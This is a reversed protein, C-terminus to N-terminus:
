SKKYTEEYKEVKDAKVAIGNALMQALAAKSAANRAEQVADRHTKLAAKVEDEGVLSSIATIVEELDAIKKGVQKFVADFIMSLQDSREELKALRELAKGTNKQVQNLSMGRTLGGM